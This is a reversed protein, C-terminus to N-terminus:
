SHFDEAAVQVPSEDPRWVPLLYDGSFRAEKTVWQCRATIAYTDDTEDHDVATVVAGDTSFTDGVQVARAPTLWIDTGEVRTANLGLVARAAWVVQDHVATYFADEYASLADDAAYDNDDLELEALVSSPTPDGAWEGSLPASPLQDMVLPDGDEIGQLWWRATEESTNGDIIWSGAAAGHDAGMERARCLYCTCATTCAM